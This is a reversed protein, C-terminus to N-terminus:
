DLPIPPPAVDPGLTEEARGVYWDRRDPSISEGQHHSPRDLGFVRALEACDETSTHGNWRRRPPAQVTIWGWSTGRGASVSWPRGTRRKLAARLRQIAEDRTM